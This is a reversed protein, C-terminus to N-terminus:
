ADLDISCPALSTLRLASQLDGVAMLGALMPLLRNQLTEYQMNRGHILQLLYFTTRDQPYPKYRQECKQALAFRQWVM